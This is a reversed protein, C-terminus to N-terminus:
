GKSWKILDAHTHFRIKVLADSRLLSYEQHGESWVVILPGNNVVPRMGPETTHLVFSQGCVFFFQGQHAFFDGTHLEGVATTLEIKQNPFAEAKTLNFILKPEKTDTM